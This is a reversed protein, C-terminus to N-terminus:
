HFRKVHFHVVGGAFQHVVEQLLAAAPLVRPAQCMANAFFFWAYLESMLTVGMTSTISTSSIMKMTMVGSVGFPRSANTGCGGFSLFLCSSGGSRVMTTCTM